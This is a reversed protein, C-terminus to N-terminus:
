AGGTVKKVQEMLSPPRYHALKAKPKLHVSRTEFQGSSVHSFNEAMLQRDTKDISTLAKGLVGERVKESEQAIEASFEDSPEPTEESDDYLDTEGSTMRSEEKPDTSTSPNLDSGEKLLQMLQEEHNM